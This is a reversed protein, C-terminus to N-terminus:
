NFSEPKCPIKITTSLGNKHKKLKISFQHQYILELRQKLNILGFAKDNFDYNSMEIKKGNNHIYITIIKNKKSIDIHLDLTSTDDALGHKIINEIIPQLLMCPILCNKANNDYNLKISLREDFRARLINIYKNTLIIEKHVAILNQDKLKLTERLYDGLDEVTNHALLSNNHMLSAITNLGNHLLHPQMQSRLVSLKSQTLHNNLIETKNRSLKLKEIHYVTYFVGVISLYILFNADIAEIYYKTFASFNFQYHQDTLIKFIANGTFIIVGLSAALIFHILFSKLWTIEKILMLKSCYIIFLAFSLVIIFESLSNEIILAYHNFSSYFDSYTYISKLIHILTLLMYFGTIIIFTKHKNSKTIKNFYIM